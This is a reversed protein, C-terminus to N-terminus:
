KFISLLNFICKLIYLFIVFFVLVHSFLLGSSRWRPEHLKDVQKVAVGNM